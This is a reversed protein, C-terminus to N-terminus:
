VLRATEGYSCVCLCVLSKTVYLRAQVPTCVFEKLRVLSGKQLRGQRVLDNNQTGLMGQQHYAGDSIVVRYREKEPAVPQGGQTNVMRVDLIQLVPKWNEGKPYEDRCIKM